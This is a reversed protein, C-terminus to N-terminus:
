HPAEELPRLAGVMSGLAAAEPSGPRQLELFPFYLHSSDPDRPSVQSDWPKWCETSV